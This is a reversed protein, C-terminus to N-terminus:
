GVTGWSFLLSSEDAKQSRSLLVERVIERRDRARLRELVEAEKEAGLGLDFCEEGFQM